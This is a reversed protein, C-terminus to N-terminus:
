YNWEVVGAGGPCVLRVVLGPYVVTIARIFWDVIMRGLRLPVERTSDVLSPM